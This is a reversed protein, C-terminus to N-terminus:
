GETASLTCCSPPDLVTKMQPQIDGSAFVAAPDSQGPRGQIQCHDPADGDAQCYMPDALAAIWTLRSKLPEVVEHGRVVGM